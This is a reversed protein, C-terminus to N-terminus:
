RRVEISRAIREQMRRSAHRLMPSSRRISRHVVHDPAYRVLIEALRHDVNTPEGDVSTSLDCYTLADLLEQPPMAFEDSVAALGREEAEVAAGSHHAVLQCVVLPVEPLGGLYRAGDLPHFGTRAVPQAYGIDHLWAAVEILDEWEGMAEALSRACRAVGQTHAWRRPLEHELLSKAIRAAEDPKIV